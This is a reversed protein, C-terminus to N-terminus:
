TSSPHPTRLAIPTVTTGHMHFEHDPPAFTAYTVFSSASPSAHTTAHATIPGRGGESGQMMTKTASEHKDGPLAKTLVDAPMDEGALHVLEIMADQVNQVMFNVKTVFHRIRKHNGSYKTALAILSKNDTYLPTPIIQPHGLEGLIGRFWSIDCTADAGANLEAECTSLSVTPQVKSKWFFMPGHEDLAFCTGTQSRSGQINAYSADSWAHLKSIATAQSRSSCAYRLTKHRTGHLYRAIRKLAQYDAETCRNSRSALTNVAFAIDPRTRLIYILLGLARRYLTPDCPPSDSPPDEYSFSTNHLDLTPSMPTRPHTITDDTLDFHTFIKHLHSPQSLHLYRQHKINEYYIHTGVYHELSDADEIEEYKTKIWAKLEATLIPCASAIAFDDVYITFAIMKNDIARHKFFLCRDYASQQYGGHVIHQALDDNFLQPSRRLGYLSKKLKWYTPPADPDATPMYKPLRIYIDEDIDASIFAAKIDLGSLTLNHQAALALLLSLSKHNCTPAFNDREDFQEENGLVVLRAKFKLFQGLTDFKTKLDYKSNFIKADPPIDKRQIEEYCGKRKIIDLEELIARQWGQWEQESRRQAQTITPNHPSRVKRAASASYSTDQDPTTSFTTTRQQKTTNFPLPDLTEDETYEEPLQHALSASLYAHYALARHHSLNHWDLEEQQYPDIASAHSSHASHPVYRSARAPLVRTPM